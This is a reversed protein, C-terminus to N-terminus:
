FKLECSFYIVNLKKFSYNFFFSHNHFCSLFALHFDYLSKFFKTELFTIKKDNRYSFDERILSNDQFSNEEFSEKLDFNPYKLKWELKM